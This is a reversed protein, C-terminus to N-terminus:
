KQFDALLKLSIDEMETMKHKDVPKKDEYGCLHLLGHAMVRHLETEFKISLNKSNDKVREISIYVDGCVENESESNDFTIIDTFTDHKLYTQNIELLYADTCFIYNLNVVKFAENHAIETLWKKLKTKQKLEFKLEETFFNIAGM